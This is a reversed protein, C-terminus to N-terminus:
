DVDEDEVLEALEAEVSSMGCRVCVDQHTWVHEVCVM